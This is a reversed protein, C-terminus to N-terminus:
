KLQIRNCNEILHGIKKCYYCYTGCKETQHGYVHCITCFHTLNVYCLTKEHGRQKCRSCYVIDQEKIGKVVENYKLIPEKKQLLVVTTM